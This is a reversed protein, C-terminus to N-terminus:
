AVIRASVGPNMAQWTLLYLSLEREAEPGLARPLTAVVAREGVQEAECEAHRLFAILDGVLCPDSVVIEMQGCPAFFVGKGLSDRGRTAPPADRSRRRDLFPKRQNCSSSAALTPPKGASATATSASSAPSTKAM